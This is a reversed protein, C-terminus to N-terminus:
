KNSGALLCQVTATADEKRRAVILLKDDTLPRQLAKPRM